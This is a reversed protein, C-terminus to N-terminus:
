IGARDAIFRIPNKEEQKRSEFDRKKIRWSGWIGGILGDRRVGYILYPFHFDPFLPLIPKKQM